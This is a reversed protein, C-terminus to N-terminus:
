AFIRRVGLAAVAALAILSLVTPEPVAEIRDLSAADLFNGSSLGGAASVADWQFRLTHSSKTTVFGGYDDSSYLTWASNGTTFNQAFLVTDDEGGLQNDSGLDTISFRVVDNGGRGRHAFSWGILDNISFANVDQFMGTPGNANIEAFQKGEYAAVGNFGSNWIEIKGDTATTSWGAVEAQDFLIFTTNNMVTSEFGGNVLNAYVPAQAALLTVCVLTLGSIKM